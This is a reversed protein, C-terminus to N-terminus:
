HERLAETPQIRLGRATPRLCALGGVLLTALAVTTLITLRGDPTVLTDNVLQRFMWLSGAVGLAVGTALQLGARKAITAVIERPPAGLASRIGIERTRQTVTFSMLAYLGAASLLIAVSALLIIAAMGLGVAVETQEVLRSLPQPDQVMLTPDVEGAIERLRASFAGVEAGIEAMIGIPHLEGPAAPHYVAWDHSPNIANVGLPGVVGVVELWPGGPTGRVIHRFRRGVAQRGGLMTEVFSTNVVVATRTSANRGELDSAAFGRGAVLPVCYDVDVVAHHARAYSPAEGDIAELELTQLRHQTGPLDRGLAVRSVLPEERLRREFELQVDRVRAGFQDAYAQEDPEEPEPWPLRLQAYLYHELEIGVAGSRDELVGRLTAGGFTLFGISLAVEAVILVTSLVGFRVTSQRTSTRQLNAHVDAAVAKLAPLVGAALACVASLGLAIATSRATLGLDIWYPIQDAVLAEFRRVAFHGAVLGAGTAALALVMSEVFLQGVIRSRSAGLASRVAIEGVRTATRALIMTGVNGCVILLLVLILVQGVFLEPDTAANARMGLGWIAAPVVEPLRHEHTTPFQMAMASGVTRLEAQAEELEVGDALRAFVGLVPGGGIPYRIPDLRFPLWFQEQRPFRFGSPM